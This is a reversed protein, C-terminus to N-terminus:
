AADLWRLPHHEALVAPLLPHGHRLPVEWESWRCEEDLMGPIADWDDDGIVYDEDTDERARPAVHEFLQPTDQQLDQAEDLSAGILVEDILPGPRDCPLIGEQLEDSIAYCRRRVAEAWARNEDVLMMVRLDLQDFPPVEHLPTGPDRLWEAIDADAWTDLVFSIARAQRPTLRTSNGWATTFAAASKSLTRELDSLRELVGECAARSAANVTEPDEEWRRWTALSVDARRAADTQTLDLEIRRESRETMVCTYHTSLSYDIPAGPTGQLLSFPSRLRAARQALAPVPGEEPPADRAQSTAPLHAAPPHNEGQAPHAPLGPVKEVYAVFWFKRLCRCLRCM